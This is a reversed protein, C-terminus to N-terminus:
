REYAHYDVLDIVTEVGTDVSFFVLLPSRSWSWLWISLLYLRDSLLVISSRALRKGDEGCGNESFLTLIQFCHKQFQFIRLFMNIRNELSEASGLVLGLVSNLEDVAGYSDDQREFNITQSVPQNASQSASQSASQNVSRSVPQSIM